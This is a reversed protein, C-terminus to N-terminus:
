TRAPHGRPGRRGAKGHGGRPQRDRHHGAAPQAPEQRAARRGPHRRRHRHPRRGAGPGRAAPRGGAGTGGGRRLGARPGAPPPDPRGPRTGAAVLRVHQRGARAPLVAAAGRRHRDVARDARGGPEHGAQGVPVRVAVPRAAGRRRGVLGRGGGALGAADAAGAPGRDAPRLHGGRRPGARGLCVLRPQDALLAAPRVARARVAARGRLQGAPEPGAAGAGAAGPRAPGAAVGRDPSLRRHPGSRRGRRGATGLRPRAAARRAAGACWGPAAGRRSRRRGAGAPGGPAPPATPLGAPTSDQGTLTIVRGAQRAAAAVVM